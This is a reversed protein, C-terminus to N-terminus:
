HIQSPTGKVSLVTECVRVVQYIDQWDRQDSLHKKIMIILKWCYLGQRHSGRKLGIKWLWLPRILLKTDLGPSETFQSKGAGHHAHYILFSCRGPGKLGGTPDLRM